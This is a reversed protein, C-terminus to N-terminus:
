AYRSLPKPIQMIGNKAFLEQCNNSFPPTKNKPGLDNERTYMANVIRPHRLTQLNPPLPVTHQIPTLTATKHARCYLDQFISGILNKFLKQYKSCRVKVIILQSVYKFCLQLFQREFFYFLVIESSLKKLLTVFISRLLDQYSDPTKFM